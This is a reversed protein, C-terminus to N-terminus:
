RRRLFCGSTRGFGSPTCIYPARGLYNNSMLKTPLVSKSKKGSTTTKEDIAIRPYGVQNSGSPTTATSSPLVTCGSPLVAILALCIICAPLTIVSIRHRSAKSYLGTGVHNNILNAMSLCRKKQHEIGGIDCDYKLANLTNQFIRPIDTVLFISM